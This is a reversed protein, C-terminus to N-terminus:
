NLNGFNEGVVLDLDGDKDIDAFTPTSFNGINIGDFPNNPGTQVTYSPVRATGTNKYYNLNGDKEGVILDLDGDKDIDAFTPTSYNGVNIGDFPNNRGTQATYIPAIATGTNKYYVLNGNNGGVVLDLDGDGDINALTPQSYFGINIGDFPNNPGTKITYIPVTANGTNQYYNLNGARKGVILDLDGDKDIDAFIPTSYSGVDINNFPNDNAIKPVFTM